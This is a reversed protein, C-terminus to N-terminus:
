VVHSKTKLYDANYKEYNEQLNGFFDVPLERQKIEGEENKLIILKKESDKEESSGAKSFCLSKSNSKRAKSAHLIIQANTLIDFVELLRTLEYLKTYHISYSTIVSACPAKSFKLIPPFPDSIKSLSPGSM